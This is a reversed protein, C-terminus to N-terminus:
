PQDTPQKPKVSKSFFDKIESDAQGFAAIEHPTLKLDGVAKNLQKVQIDGDLGSVLFLGGKTFDYTEGNIMLQGNQAEQMELSFAIERNLQNDKGRYVLAGKGGHVMAGKITNSSSSVSCLPADSWVVVVPNGDWTFYLISANDVGIGSMFGKKEADQLTVIGNAFRPRVSSPPTTANCGAITLLIYFVLSILWAVKM